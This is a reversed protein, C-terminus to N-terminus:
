RPFHPCLFHPRPHLPDRRHKHGLARPPPIPPPSKSGHGRPRPPSQYEGTKNPRAHIDTLLRVSASKALPLIVFIKPRASSKSTIMAAFRAAKRASGLVLAAQPAVAPKRAPKPQTARAIAVIARNSRREHFYM